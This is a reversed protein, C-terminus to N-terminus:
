QKQVAANQRSYAREMSDRKDPNVVGRDGYESNTLCLVWNGLYNVPKFFMKTSIEPMDGEAPKIVVRCLVENKYYEDFKIYEIRYDTMPVSQLMQRVQAMEENNLQRPEADRDEDNRYLMGAAEAYDKAKVFGFFRDVLQKVAMTDKSGMTQEFETKQAGDAPKKEGRCGGLCLLVALVAVSVSIRQLRM